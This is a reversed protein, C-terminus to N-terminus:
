VEVVGKYPFQKSPVGLEDKLDALVESIPIDDRNMAEIYPIKGYPGDWIMNANKVNQLTGALYKKQVDQRANNQGHNGIADYAKEAASQVDAEASIGVNKYEVGIAETSGAVGGHRDDTIKRLRDSMQNRSEDNREKAKALKIQAPNMGEYPDAPPTPEAKLTDQKPKAKPTDQTPTHAKRSESVASQRAERREQITEALSVREAESESAKTTNRSVSGSLGGVRAAAQRQKQRLEDVNQPSNGTLRSGQSDHEAQAIQRSINRLEKRSESLRKQADRKAKNAAVRERYASGRANRLDATTRTTEDTSDNTM